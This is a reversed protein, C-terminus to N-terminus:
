VNFRFHIVEGDQPIYEKGELRMKNAERCKTDSGLQAMDEWAMVEARIFGREIDSHIKGAAAQARTGRRITWARVEDPGATFFSILDLMDYAARIFRDRAAAKLGLAALYERGEEESLDGLEMEVQGSVTMLRLRHAEAFAAIPVPPEAAAQDEAVNLLVLCPKVSLFAYGVLQKWDEATLSDLLRLPQDSELHTLIIELIDRERSKTGEKRIRELRKEVVILDALILESEFAQVDRRMDPAETLAPNDFGRVVHVLAEAKRLENLANASFGKGKEPATAALDTFAMEAYTLKKPQIKDAIRKLRADPVKITGLNRVDDDHYGGVEAKLGTLTNFITTKGVGRYGVIGVKM